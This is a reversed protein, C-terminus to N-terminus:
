LHEMEGDHEEGAKGQLRTFLVRGEKFGADCM